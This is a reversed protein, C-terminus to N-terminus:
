HKNDILCIFGTQDNRVIILEDIADCKQACM